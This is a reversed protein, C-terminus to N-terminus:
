GVEVQRLGPSTPGTHTGMSSNNSYCLINNFYKGCCVNRLYVVVYFWLDSMSPKYETCPCLHVAPLYKSANGYSFAPTKEVEREIALRRGFEM